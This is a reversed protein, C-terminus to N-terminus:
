GRTRNLRSKPLKIQAMGASNAQILHSLHNREYYAALWVEVQPRFEADTM